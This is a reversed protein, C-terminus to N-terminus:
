RWCSLRVHEVVLEAFDTHNKLCDNLRLAPVADWPDLCGDIAHASIAMPVQPTPM